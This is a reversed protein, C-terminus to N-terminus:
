IPNKYKKKEFPDNVNEYIKVSVYIVTSTIHAKKEPPVLWCFFFLHINILKSM